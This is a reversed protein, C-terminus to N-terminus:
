KAEGNGTVEARPEPQGPHAALLARLVYSLANLGDASSDNGTARCLDEAQELAGFNGGLVDRMESTLGEQAGAQAVLKERLVANEGMLEDFQRRVGAGMVHEAMDVAMILERRVRILVGGEVWGGDDHDYRESRFYGDADPAAITYSDFPGGYTPVNGLEPHAIWMFFPKGTVPCEDPCWRRDKMREAGEAGTENASAARLFFDVLIANKDDGARADFQDQHTQIYDWAPKLTNVLNDFVWKPVTENASARADRLVHQILADVAMASGFEVYGGETIRGGVHAIREALTMGSEAHPQQAIMGCDACKGDAWTWQHSCTQTENASAARVAAEGHLALFDKVAQQVIAPNRSEGTHVHRVRRLLGIAERLLVAQEDSPAPATARHLWRDYEAYARGIVQQKLEGAVYNRGGVRAPRELKDDIPAAATQEVNQALDSVHLEENLRLNEAELRRVDARLGANEAVLRTFDAASYPEYPQEVPSTALIARVAAILRNVNARDRPFDVGSLDFAHVIHEDTPADARSKDTTM